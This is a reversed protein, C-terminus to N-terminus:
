ASGGPAAAREGVRDGKRCPASSQSDDAERAKTSWEEDHCSEDSIRVTRKRECSAWLPCLQRVCRAADRASAIPFANPADRPPNSRDIPGLRSLSLSRSARHARHRSPVRSPTESSAPGANRTRLLDDSGPTAARAPPSSSFHACKPGLNQGGCSRVRQRKSRRTSSECRQPAPPMPSRLPVFSVLRIAAFCFPRSGDPLSPPSPPVLCPSLSLHLDPAARRRRTPPALPSLLPPPPPARCLVPPWARHLRRRNTPLLARPLAFPPLLLPHAVWFSSHFLRTSLELPFSPFPM